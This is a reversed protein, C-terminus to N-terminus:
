PILGNEKWVAFSKPYLSKAHELGTQGAIQKNSYILRGFEAFGESPKLTAYESIGVPGDVIEEKWAKKWVSTESIKHDPWDLVHTFEHSYIGLADDKNGAGDLHLVRREGDYMGQIGTADDLPIKRLANGAKTLARTDEYFEFRIVVAEFREVAKQPMNELAQRATARYAEKKEKSLGRGLLGKDLKNIAEDIVIKHGEALAKKKVAKLAKKEAIQELTPGLKKKLKPKSIPVALGKPASKGQPPILQRKELEELELSMRSGLKKKQNFKRLLKLKEKEGLTLPLKEIPVPPKLKALDKVAKLKTSFPSEFQVFKGDIIEGAKPLNLFARNKIKELNFIQLENGNTDYQIADFGLDRLLRPDPKGTNTVKIYDDIHIVRLDEPLHVSVVKGKSGAFGEAEQKIETFSVSDPSLTGINRSGKAQEGTKFGNKIIDDANKVTKTGHFVVRGGKGRSKFLEGKTYLKRLIPSFDQFAKQSTLKDIPKAVPLIKPTKQTEPPILQKPPDLVSIPRRKAITKGGFPTLKRQEAITRKSRKPIHAKVSKRIAKEVEVEGRKQKSTDEGVNAPIHSCRCNPHLPILGRAEKISFVVGEMPECRPCVRNDGATSWEVMVGVKTVGLKELSDLQGEAHARIIETRAITTARAKGIKNIRNALNRGVDRPGLGQSLGDALVRTMQTALTDTVGKLDTFVRGTLLKIKDIAIPHAFSQRLFEEKTGEFFALQEPTTALAPKRVDSFVRGAGKRYGEEVFAQYYADDLNGATTTLIDEQIQTELWVRFESVKQSDTLFRWRTNLVQGNENSLFPNKNVQKLAFADERIVLDLVKRRLINFRKIFESVFRRRLMLTRTPDSKLSNSPVVRTRQLHRINKILM